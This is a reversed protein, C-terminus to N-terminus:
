IGCGLYFDAVHTDIYFTKQSVGFPFFIDSRLVQRVVWKGSEQRIYAIPIIHKGIHKLKTEYLDWRQNLSLDEQDPATGVNVDSVIFPDTPPNPSGHWVNETKLTDTGSIFDTEPPDADYDAKVTEIDKCKVTATMGYQSDTDGDIEVYLLTDNNGDLTVKYRMGENREDLYGPNPTVLPASGPLETVGTGIAASLNEEFANWVKGTQAPDDKKNPGVGFVNGVFLKFTMESNGGVEAVSRGYVKFPHYYEPEPMVDAEVMPSHSGQARVFTGAAPSASYKSSPFQPM